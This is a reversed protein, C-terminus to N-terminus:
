LLMVECSSAEEKESSIKFTHLFIHEEVQLHSLEAAMKSQLQLLIAEEEELFRYM